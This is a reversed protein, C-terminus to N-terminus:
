RQILAPVLEASPIWSLPCFKLSKTALLYGSMTTIVGRVSQSEAQSEGWMLFVM